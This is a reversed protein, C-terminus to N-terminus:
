NLLPADTLATIDVSVPVAIRARAPNDKGAISRNTAGIVAAPDPAILPAAIPAAVTATPAATTM